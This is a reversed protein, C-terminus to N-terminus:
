YHNVKNRVVRKGMIQEVEYIDNEDSSSDQSGHDIQPSESGTEVPPSDIFENPTNPEESFSSDNQGTSNVTNLETSADSTYINTGFGDMQLASSNPNTSVFSTRRVMSDNPNSQFSRRFIPWVADSQVNESVVKEHTAM